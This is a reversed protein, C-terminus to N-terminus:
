SIEEVEDWIVSTVQGDLGAVGEFDGVQVDAVFDGFLGTKADRKVIVVRASQQLAVAVLTGAKNMSM